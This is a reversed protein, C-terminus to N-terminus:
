RRLLMLRRGNLGLATLELVPRDALFDGLSFSILLMVVPRM